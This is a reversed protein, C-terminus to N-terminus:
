NVERKVHSLMDRISAYAAGLHPSIADTAYQIITDDPEDDDIAAFAADQITMALSEALDDAQEASMAIKSRLFKAIDEAVIKCAERIKSM